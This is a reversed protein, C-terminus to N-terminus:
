DLFALSKSGMVGIPITAYANVSTPRRKGFCSYIENVLM